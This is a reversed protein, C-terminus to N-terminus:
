SSSSTSCGSAKLETGATGTGTAAKHLPVGPPIMGAKLLTVGTCSLPGSGGHTASRSTAADEVRPATFMSRTSRTWGHWHPARATDLWQPV